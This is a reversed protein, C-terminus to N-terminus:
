APKASAAPGTRYRAGSGALAWALEVLAPNDLLPEGALVLCYDTGDIWFPVFSVRPLLMAIDTHFSVRGATNWGRARQRRTYEGFDAAAACLAEAEDPSYGVAGICFGGGSALAARREGSLSAIVPAIFADLRPEPARRGRPLVELWGAALAEALLAAPQEAQWAALTPLEAAALVSQLARRPADPEAEGFAHLVGAPTLTLTRPDASGGGHEHTNM